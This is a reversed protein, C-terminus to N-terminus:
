FKAASATRMTIVCSGLRGAYIQSLMDAGAPLVFSFFLLTIYIFLNCNGLTLYRECAPIYLLSQLNSVFQVKVKV